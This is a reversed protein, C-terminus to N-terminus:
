WFTNQTLNTHILGTTILGDPFFVNGNRKTIKQKNTIKHKDNIAPTNKKEIILVTDVIIFLFGSMYSFWQTLNSNPKVVRVLLLILAPTLSPRAIFVKFRNRCSFFFVFFYIFFLFSFFPIELDLVMNGVMVHYILISFWNVVFHLWHFAPSLM